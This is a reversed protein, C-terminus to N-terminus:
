FAVANGCACIMGMALNIDENAMNEDLVKLRDGELLHGYYHISNHHYITHM